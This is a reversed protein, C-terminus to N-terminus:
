AGATYRNIIRVLADILIDRGQAITLKEIEARVDAATTQVAHVFVGLDQLPRGSALQDHLAITADYFPVAFRNISRCAEAPIDGADCRADLPTDFKELGTVVANDVSVAAKAAATNVRDCGTMATASIALALIPVLYRLKM